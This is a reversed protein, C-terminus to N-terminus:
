PVHQRPKAVVGELDHACCVEFFAPGDTGDFHEIYRLRDPGGRLLRRLIDKREYLTHWRLDHGNHWLCDFAYFVPTGRRYLLSNFNAKGQEDLCM